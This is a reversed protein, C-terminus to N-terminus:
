NRETIKSYKSSNAPDIEKMINIADTKEKPNAEKFINVIEDSKADLMLKLAFLGPKDDYVNQLYKLSELINARGEDTKDSMMDLGLRHYDYLFKRLDSYSNNTYNEVLWYRNKQTEFAKWGKYASNQATNVIAEAKEYFPTGGSESFSDFDLGLIMYLYYAVVSTLNSSFNNEQYDLAQFQVYEFDFSNDVYNLLPSNYSSMYIPRSAVINLRAKFVDTSVRETITIVMTCEIREGVKFEYNTWIRNNVFEMLSNKMDDYVQRDSGQVQTSSVDVTCLFEQAPVTTSLFIFLIFYLIRVPKYKSRIKIM